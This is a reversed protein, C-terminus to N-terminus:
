RPGGFLSRRRLLRTALAGCLWAAVATLEILWALSMTTHGLLWDVVVPRANASAIAVMLAPLALVFCALAALRMRRAM